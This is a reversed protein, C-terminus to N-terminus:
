VAGIRRQKRKYFLEFLYGELILVIFVVVFIPFLYVFPIPIWTYFTELVVNQDTKFTYLFNSEISINTARLTANIGHCLAGFIFLLASCKLADKTRPKYLGFVVPMLALIFLIEHTLFCGLINFYEFGYGVFRSNGTIVPAAASPVALFFLLAYLIPKKHYYAFPALLMLVNCLHLPITDEWLKTFLLAESIKDAYMLIVNFVAIIFLAKTKTKEDKKRLAFFIIIFLIPLIAILLFHM